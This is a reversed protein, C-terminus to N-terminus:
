EWEIQQCEENRMKNLEYEQYKKESEDRLAKVRARQKETAEAAFAAEEAVESVEAAAAPAAAASRRQYFAHEASSCCRDPLTGDAARTGDQGPFSLEMRVERGGGRGDVVTGTWWRERGGRGDVNMRRILTSPATGM